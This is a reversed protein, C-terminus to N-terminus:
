CDHQNYTEFSWLNGELDRVSFQRSGYDTDTLERVVEAGARTARAPVADPDGVAIYLSIRGARPDPPRARRFGDEHYSGLMILGDGLKLEAHRIRGDPGRYLDREETGFAETLWTLAADAHGYRLAPFINQTSM